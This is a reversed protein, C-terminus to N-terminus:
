LIFILIDFCVNLDVQASWLREAVAAAKTIAYGEFDWKNAGESWRRPICMYITSFTYSSQSDLGCRYQSSGIFSQSPLLGHLL